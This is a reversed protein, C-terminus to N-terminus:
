IVRAFVRCECSIGVFARANECGLMNMRVQLDYYAQGKVEKKSIEFRRQFACRPLYSDAVDHCVRTIVTFRIMMCERPVFEFYLRDVWGVGPIVFGRLYQRGEERDTSASDPM